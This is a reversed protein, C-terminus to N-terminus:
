ELPSRFARKHQDAVSLAVAPARKHAQQPQVPGPPAQNQVASRAEAPCGAIAQRPGAAPRYRMAWAAAAGWVVEVGAAVAADDPPRGSLQVPFARRSAPVSAPARAVM